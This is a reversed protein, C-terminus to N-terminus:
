YGLGYRGWLAYGTALPIAAIIAIVLLVNRAPEHGENHTQYAFFCAAILGFLPTALALILSIVIRLGDDGLSFRPLSVGGTRKRVRQKRAALQERAAAIDAGCVACGMAFPTVPEGCDPCKNISRPVGGSHWPRTTTEEVIM